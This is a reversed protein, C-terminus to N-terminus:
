AVDVAPAEGELGTVGQATGAVTAVEAWGTAVVARAMGVVEAVSDAETAVAETARM